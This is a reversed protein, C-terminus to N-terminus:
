LIDQDLVGAPMQTAFVMPGIRGNKINSDIWERAGHAWVIPWYRLLDRVPLAALQGSIAIAPTQDNAFTIKGSAGFAFPGDNLSLKELVLDHSAPIWSALLQGSSLATPNAFVGPMNLVLRDASIDTDLKQLSGAADYVFQVKGKLRGSTKDANLT